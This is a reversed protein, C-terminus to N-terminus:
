FVFTEILTCCDPQFSNSIQNFEIINTHKKNSIITTLTESTSTKMKIFFPFM